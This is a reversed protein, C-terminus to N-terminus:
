SEFFKKVVAAFGPLVDPLTLEDGNHFRQPFEEARFVAASQLNPDLILVVRVGADLYEFAKETLGRVSDSPSRVEVVLELPPTLAGQPIVADAPLTAFSAFSLDAGRCGDPNTRTRIFTDNGFVHGLKNTEVFGGLLFSVKFCVKGHIGGPMPWRVIQGNVLEVGSKDGYLRLFEDAAILPTATTTMFM